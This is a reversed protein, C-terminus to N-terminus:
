PVCNPCCCDTPETAVKSLEVENFQAAQQIFNLLAPDKLRHYIYRGERRSEILGANRLAMLHQSIYAQRYGLISELHCVCSEGTGIALLIELRANPSLAQFFLSVKELSSTNTSLINM